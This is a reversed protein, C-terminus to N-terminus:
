KKTKNKAYYTALTEAFLFDEQTDIDVSRENPMIFYGNKVGYLSKYKRLTEPRLIYLAGNPKYVPELQQSRKRFYKIGFIPNITKKKLYCSWFPAPEMKHVGIVTETKSKLFTEIAGDIDKTIRLPSTPQLVVVIDFIKNQKKLEDLAFILADSLSSADRTKKRPLLFPIEAGFKNAIKAIENTDCAVVIESIYKSKKAQEITWAILPKGHFNKTNKGRLRKSGGRAPILALIRKKKM